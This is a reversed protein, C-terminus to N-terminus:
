KEFDLEEDDCFDFDEEDEFDFKSSIDCPEVEDTISSEYLRAAMKLDRGYVFKPVYRGEITIEEKTGIQKTSREKRYQLGLSGFGHMAVNDGRILADIIVRMTANIVAGVDAATFMVERDVGKITFNKTNGDDDSIHLTHKPVHFKKRKNSKDLQDVIRRILEERKM